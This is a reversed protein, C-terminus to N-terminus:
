PSNQPWRHPPAQTPSTFISAFAKGHKQGTRCRRRGHADNGEKSANDQTREYGWLDGPSFRTGIKPRAAAADRTTGEKLADSRLLKLADIATSPQEETTEALSTSAARQYPAAVSPLSSM